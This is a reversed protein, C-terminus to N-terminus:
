FVTGLEQDKQFVPLCLPLPDLRKSPFVSEESKLICLDTNAVAELIKAHILIKSLFFSFFADPRTPSKLFFSTVSKSANKIKLFM